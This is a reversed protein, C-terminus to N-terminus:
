LLGSQQAFVGAYHLVRYIEVDAAIVANINPTLAATPLAPNFSALADIGVDDLIIFLINPPVPKV